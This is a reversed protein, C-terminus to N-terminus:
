AGDQRKRRQQEQKLAGILDALDDDGLRVASRRLREGLPLTEAGIEYGSTVVVFASTAPEVLVKTLSEAPRTVRMMAGRGAPIEADDHADDLM